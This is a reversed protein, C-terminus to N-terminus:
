LTIFILKSYCQKIASFCDLEQNLNYVFSLRIFVVRNSNLLINENVQLSVGFRFCKSGFHLFVSITDYESSIPDNEWFHLIGTGFCKETYSM